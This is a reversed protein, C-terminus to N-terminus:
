GSYGRKTPLTSTHVKLAPNYKKTSISKNIIVKDDDAEQLAKEGKYKCQKSTCHECDHEVAIHQEIAKKIHCNEM